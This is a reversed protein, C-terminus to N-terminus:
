VVAKLGEVFRFGDTAALVRVPKFGAEALDREIDYGAPREIPGRWLGGGGVREVVDVRGGPRVIRRAEALAARRADVARGAFRGQTDDVVVLDASDADFPLPGGGAMAVEVLAGVRAAAGKARAASPEDFAAVASAGSLGAKAALGELLARDDCGILLFREGMKIGTMAVQLPDFAKRGRVVSMLFKFFM